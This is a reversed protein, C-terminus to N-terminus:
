HHRGVMEDETTVKEEQRWHKGADPDEGTLWNKADPPWLIPTEAEADVSMECVLLTISLIRYTLSWCYMFRSTGSTWAPNLFPLPVLPWITLMWKNMYFCSLELFVDGEAKNVIGFVNVTHIVAFQFIRWSIPIGSWRVQRRLHRYAPSTAFTLVMCSVHAPELNHLSYM